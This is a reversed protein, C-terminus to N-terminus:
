NSGRRIRGLASLAVLQQRARLGDYMEILVVNDHTAVLSRHSKQDLRVQQEITEAGDACMAELLALSVAPM